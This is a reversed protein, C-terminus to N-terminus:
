RAGIGNQAAPRAPAPEMGRDVTAGSRFGAVKQADAVLRSSLRGGGVAVNVVHDRGFIAGMEAATLAIVVPLDHALARVKRRSGEAGDLAVLLVGAKRSRVSDRVKEFGAVALGSRRALGLAECCRTVLLAEVRDALGPAMSISRRAAKAFSRKAFASELIDRRPTVWLGRGPLRSGVDPVMEGDPSIVFRLLKSRDCVQGTAICRRQPEQDSRVERRV